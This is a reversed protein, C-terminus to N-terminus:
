KEFDTRKNIVVRRKSIPHIFKIYYANLYMNGNIYSSYLPDNILSHNIHAFSVRIQHTRGTILKIDVLSNENIYKVLKYKTISLKGDDCVMRKISNDEKKIKVKIVGKKNIKGSVFAQYKKIIKVNKFLNHIYQNKAIIIIGSTLKDLRNVLHIKSKINNKKYYYSIINSLSKDYNCKTPEVDMNIPKSVILIYKDEYLIDLDAKYSIIHNYEENLTVNIISNFKLYHNKDKVISGDVIVNKNKILYFINNESYGKKLLFEKINNCFYNKYKFFISM